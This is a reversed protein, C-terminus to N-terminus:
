GSTQAFNQVPWPPDENRREGDDLASKEPARLPRSPVAQGRELRKLEYRRAQFAKVLFECAATPDTHEGCTFVDAAAYGLEPWTHISIHSESLLALATVGQPEFHHVCEALLTAGAHRVAQRISEQVHAVDNLLGAPCDYVELISHSGLADM